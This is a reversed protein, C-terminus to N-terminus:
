YRAAVRSQRLATGMAQVLTLFHEAHSYYEKVTIYSTHYIQKTIVSLMAIRVLMAEEFDNLMLAKDNSGTSKLAFRASGAHILARLVVRM